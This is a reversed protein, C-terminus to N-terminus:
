GSGIIDDIPSLLAEALKDLNESSPFDKAQALKKGLEVMEPRIDSGSMLKSIHHEIQELDSTKKISESESYRDRRKRVKDPIPQGFSNNSTSIPPIDAM